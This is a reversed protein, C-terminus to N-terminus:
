RVGAQRATVYVGSKYAISRGRPSLMFSILKHAAPNTGPTTVISIEKALPYAGSALTKPSPKVGNLALAAVPIKEVVVTPMGAAGIGGPTAAVMTYAEPDTIAMLLGPRSRAVAMASAMGSSLSSLIRTDVDENPRMVLRIIAGNPWTTLKGNYIDELERTTIERTDVHREAIIVLPTKGYWQQRAGRAIEEKKLPRCSLAMDLAGALLAKIAGSSGLPKEMIIRDGSGTKLYAAVLPKMMDLASGSGNIRITEASGCVGPPMLLALAIGLIYGALGANRM